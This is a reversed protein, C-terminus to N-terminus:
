QRKEQAVNQAKTHVDLKLVEREITKGKETLALISKDRNGKELFLAWKKLDEKRKDFDSQSLLLDWRFIGFVNAITKGGLPQEFAEAINLRMLVESSFRLPIINKFFVEGDYIVQHFEKLPKLEKGDFSIEQWSDFSLTETKSEDLYYFQGRSNSKDKYAKFYTKSLTGTFVDFSAEEIDIVGNPLSFLFNARLKERWLSNTKTVDLFDLLYKKREKEEKWKPDSIEPYLPLALPDSMIFQQKAVGTEHQRSALKIFGQNVRFFYFVNKDTFNIERLFVSTEPALRLVEGSSLALWLYSDKETYVEDGEILKSKQQIKYDRAERQAQCTGVCSIVRAVVERYEKARSLIAYNESKESALAKEKWKKYDLLDDGTKGTWDTSSNKEGKFRIKRDKLEEGRLIQDSTLDLNQPNNEPVPIVKQKQPKMVPVDLGHVEPERQKKDEKLESDFYLNLNELPDDEEADAFALSLFLLVIVLQLTFIKM